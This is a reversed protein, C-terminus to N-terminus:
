LPFLLLRPQIFSDHEPSPLTLSNLPSVKPTPKFKPAKDNTLHVVTGDM